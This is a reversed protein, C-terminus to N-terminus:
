KEKQNFDAFENSEYGNIWKLQSRIGLFILCFFEGSDNSKKSKQNKNERLNMKFSFIIYHLSFAEKIKLSKRVFSNPM